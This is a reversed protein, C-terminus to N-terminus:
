TPIWIKLTWMQLNWHVGTYNETSIFHKQANRQLLTGYFSIVWEPANNQLLKVIM